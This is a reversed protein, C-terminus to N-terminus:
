ASTRLRALSGPLWLATANIGTNTVLVVLVLALLTKIECRVFDLDVIMGMSILFLAIFVVEFPGISRSV